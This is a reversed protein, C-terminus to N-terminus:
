YNNRIYSMIESFVKKYGKSEENFYVTINHYQMGLVLTLIATQGDNNYQELISQMRNFKNSYYNYLYRVFLEM